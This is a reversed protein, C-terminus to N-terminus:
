FVGAYVERRTLATGPAELRIVAASDLFTEMRWAADEADRRWHLMRPSEADVALYHRLSPVAQYVALKDGLDREATTASMVEVTLTPNVLTDIGRVKELRPTGCFVSVDPYVYPPQGPQDALPNRVALDATRPRCDGGRLGALLAELINMIIQAHPASGGSRCVIHGHWYEHRKDSASELAFYEDLSYATQVPQSVASM